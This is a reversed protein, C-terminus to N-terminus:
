QKGYALESDAHILSSFNKQEDRYKVILHDIRSAEYAQQYSLNTDMRGLEHLLEGAKAPFITEMRIGIKEQYQRDIHEVLTTTCNDRLTRYFKPEDHLANASMALDKFLAAIFEPEAQIPYLHLASGRVLARLTLLDKEDGFIYILEFQRM